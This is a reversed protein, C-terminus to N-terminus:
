GMGRVEAASVGMVGEEEVVVAEGVMGPMTATVSGSNTVYAWKSTRHDTASSVMARSMNLTANDRSSLRGVTVNALSPATITCSLSVDSLHENM